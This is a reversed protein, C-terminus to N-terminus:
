RVNYPMIDSDATKYAVSYMEDGEVAVAIMAVVRRKSGVLRL